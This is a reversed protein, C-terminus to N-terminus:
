QIFTLLFQDIEQNVSESNDFNSNHAANPIIHLPFKTNKHWEDCYQTVKGTQDHQGILLVTPCTIELDCNEELLKVYSIGLLHCLEKKSYPQLATLMNVYAAKTYTCSQAISKVLLKHPFCMSMWEIQRLWWLDSKSYYNLGFPSTDIGVFGKVENPYRKMYAQAIYGGLSQGVFIADKIQEKELIDKLNKAVCFYSFDSYPRSKGHAPTDWCFLNCRGLFHPIQKEFLTHDAALGHLFVLTNESQCKSVWYAISGSSTDFQKQEMIEFISKEM